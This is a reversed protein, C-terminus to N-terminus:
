PERAQVALQQLYQRERDDTSLEAARDLSGAADAREGASLQLHGRAAWAAQMGDVATGIADLAALGARPGDLRGMVVARAIRAGLTPALVLLADYLGLLTRWDPEAGPERTSHTLAITAEIQFRGVVGAAHAASLHDKALAVLPQDWTTPDQRDLPVFQEVSRAPARAALLAALAALGRAEPDTPMLHAVTEALARPGLPGATRWDISLAGYVAELVADLRDPLADRGPIRFPIRNAKIRRKARVLRTAMTRSPVAYAAGVQAATYGLVTSMMLPTRDASGIAPHACVLMLELRRDPIADPDVDDEVPPADWEADLPTARRVEASRWHDRLRNRAATLLWADPNAPTREPWSRLAREFADSLADEALQVDGTWSVLLALIRGYSTRAAQEARVLAEHSSIM